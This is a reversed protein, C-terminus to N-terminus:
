PKGGPPTGSTAHVVANQGRPEGLTRLYALVDAIGQDSFAPAEPRQFAPMATAVRGNRITRVIFDDTAARQFVPNGIEPAMGARGNMGHCGACNRLFLSLGNSADGHLTLATMAPAALAGSRLFEIVGAIEEPLLGGAHPGWAPMQTGPRGQEINSQFYERTATSILSVGRIAPIFRNFKKDWRTYAGNGHCATCYQRYIQEGTLPAPHLARYKQEIKDPALYSEPVDRKWQSLMYATLALAERRTVTPNRMLSDPVLGGPDRFHANQWNWTTHPPKLNTMILQHKTRAGENDLAPGLAGGRGGLKHCSGCSKEEFLRMGAVLLPIQDPPLKEADHCTVCTAETMEPPLLPYDWFVDEAKAENFTLAAGQGHHCVTCGFRDVPHKDLIHGPHTRHPQPVDTMRPDDIGNHCTVCRDVTGLAPISAQKMEVRFKALLERGRDDTAKERLINRYEHQVTRWQALYNERVAAGVLYVISVASAVLLLWRYIRSPDKM